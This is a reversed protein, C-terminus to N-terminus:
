AYVLLYRTEFPKQSLHALSDFPPDFAPDFRLQLRFDFRPQM